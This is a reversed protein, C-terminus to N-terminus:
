FPLKKSLSLNVFIFLFNSLDKGCILVLMPHSYIPFKKKISIYIFRRVANGIATKPHKPFRIFFSSKKRRKILLTLRM